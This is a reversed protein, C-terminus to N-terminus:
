SAGDILARLSVATIVTRRGLKKKVLKGESILEYIRSRGLSTACMAGNISYALPEPFPKQAADKM